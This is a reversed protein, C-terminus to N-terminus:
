KAHQNATVFWAWASKLHLDGSLETIQIRDFMRCSTCSHWMKYVFLRFLLSFFVLVQIFSCTLTWQVFVVCLYDPLLSVLHPCVSASFRIFILVLFNLVSEPNQGSFKLNPIHKKCCHHKLPSFSLASFTQQFHPQPWFNRVTVSVVQSFASWLLRGYNHHLAGCIKVRPLAFSEM